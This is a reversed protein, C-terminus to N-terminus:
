LKSPMLFFPTTFYKLCKKPGFRKKDGSINGISIIECIDLIMDSENLSKPFTLPSSRKKITINDRAGHTKGTKGKKIKTNKPAKCAKM